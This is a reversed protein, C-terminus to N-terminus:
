LPYTKTSDYELNLNPTPSNTKDAIIAPLDRLWQRYAEMKVKKDSDPMNPVYDTKQLYPERMMRYAQITFERQKEAAENYQWGSLDDKLELFMAPDNDRVEFGIHEDDAEWINVNPQKSQKNFYICRPLKIPTLSM